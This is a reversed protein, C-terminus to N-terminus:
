ENLNEEDECEIVISLNVASNLMMKNMLIDYVQKDVKIRYDIGHLSVFYDSKVPSYHSHTEFLETVPVCEVFKVKGKLVIKDKM